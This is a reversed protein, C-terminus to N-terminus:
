IHLAKERKNSSQVMKPVRAELYVREEGVTIVKAAIRLHPGGMFVAGETSM